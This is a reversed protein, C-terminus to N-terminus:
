FQNVKIEAHIPYAIVCGSFHLLPPAWEDAFKKPAHTFENWM